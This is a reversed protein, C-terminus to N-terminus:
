YFGVKLSVLSSRQEQSDTLCREAIIVADIDHFPINFALGEEPQGSTNQGSQHQLLRYLQQVLAGQQQLQQDIGELKV